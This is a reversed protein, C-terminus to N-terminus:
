IVGGYLRKDGQSRMIKHILKPFNEYTLEKVEPLYGVETCLAFVRQLCVLQEKYEDSFNLVSEDFFSDSIESFDGTYSGDKRCQDGLETGPYPAFISCWGYDPQCQINVELTALDDEITASPLGLINQIMLKIDWKRLLWAAKITEKNTTKERGIMQRLRDSATELAIRVSYCHSDHLFLVREDTCQDPRLHCHYPINVQKGYQKSFERMWKINVGFCSDQFYVFEPDVSNVEDVVDKVSRYRVRPLDPYMQAFRDSYCYRCKYLCGRSAIFDRIVMDPFDTRDPWPISDLTLYNRSSGVFNAMWQEGEGRVIQADINKFDNQFFTPHPGGFVISPVPKPKTALIQAATVIMKHQDGTLVSFGVMDPHWSLSVPVADDLAVIRCEHGVQKAVASLYMVGLCEMKKSKVVLLIKM